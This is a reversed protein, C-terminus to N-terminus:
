GMNEGGYRGAAGLKKGWKEQSKSENPRAVGWAQKMIKVEKTFELKGNRIM